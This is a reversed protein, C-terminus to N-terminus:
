NQVDRAAKLRILMVLGWAIIAYVIFAIIVSPEFVSRASLGETVFTSFIGKFPAALIGTITYIFSVFGSAQNAGLLKFLFRFALLVEIVGLVYYISNRSKIYWLPAPHDNYALTNSGYTSYRRFDKEDHGTEHKNNDDMLEETGGVTGIAPM